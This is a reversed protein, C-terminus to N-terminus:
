ARAPKSDLATATLARRGSPTAPDRLPGRGTSDPDGRWRIDAARRRLDALVEPSRRPPGVFPGASRMAASSWKIGYGQTAAEPRWGDAHRQGAVWPEGLRDYLVTSLPPEDDEGPVYLRALLTLAERRAQEARRAARNARDYADRAARTTPRTM